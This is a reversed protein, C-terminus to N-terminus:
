PVMGIADHGTLEKECDGYLILSRPTGPQEFRWAPGGNARFYEVHAPQEARYGHKLAAQWVEKPGCRPDPLAEGREAPCPLGAQDPDAVLGQEKVHVNQRGCTDRRALTGPPRPPQPGLGRQSGFVYRIRNGPASVDVTGDSKVGWAAVGRLDSRVTAAHAADLTKLVDVAKPFGAVGETTPPAPAGAPPASTTRAWWSVCLGAIFAVGVISLGMKKDRRATDTAEAM